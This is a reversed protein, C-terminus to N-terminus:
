RRIGGTRVAEKLAYGIHATLRTMNDVADFLGGVDGRAAQEVVKNAAALIARLYDAAHNLVECQVAVSLPVPEDPRRRAGGQDEAEM